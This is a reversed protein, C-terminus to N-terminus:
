HTSSAFICFPLVSVDSLCLRQFTGLLQVARCVRRSRRSPLRPASGGTALTRPRPHRRRFNKSHWIRNPTNHGVVSGGRTSKRGTPIEVGKLLIHRRDWSYERLSSHCKSGNLRKKCLVSANRVSLCCLLCVVGRSWRECIVINYNYPMQKPMATYFHPSCPLFWMVRSLNILDTFQDKARFTSFRRNFSGLFCMMRKKGGASYRRNQSKCLLKEKNGAWHSFVSHRHNNLSVFDFAVKDLNLNDTDTSHIYLIRLIRLNNLREQEM